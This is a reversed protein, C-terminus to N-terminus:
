SAWYVPHPFAAAKDCLDSGKLAISIRLSSMSGCIPTHNQDITCGIEKFCCDTFNLHGSCPVQLTHLNDSNMDVSPCHADIKTYMARSM